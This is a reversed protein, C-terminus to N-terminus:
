HSILLIGSPNNRSDRLTSVSLPCTIYQGDKQLFEIEMQGRYGHSINQKIHELDENNILYKQLDTGRVEERAYGLIWQATLNFEVIQAKMNVTIIMLSASDIISRAEELAQSLVNKQSQRFAATEVVLNLDRDNFPKLLYGFPKTIKARQFLEQDEYATLYVIPVDSFSLIKNAAEIGDDDNDLLIDMLILDPKLEKTLQIAMAETSALGAVDYGLYNLKFSIFKAMQPDDEVVLIRTPQDHEQVLARSTDVM